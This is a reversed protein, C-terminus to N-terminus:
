DNPFNAIFKQLAMKEQEELNKRLRYRSKKVSSPNVGLLDGVQIDKLGIKEMACLKLENSSLQPFRDQLMKFFNPYIAEFDQRFLLWDDETSIRAQLLQEISKVRQGTQEHQISAIQEQIEDILEDKELLNTAYNMLEQEKMRLATHANKLQLQKMRIIVITLVILFGIIVLSAYLLLLKRENQAQLLKNEKEKKETEYKTQIEAIQKSKEASFVSDQVAIHHQLTQFALAHKGQETQLLALDKLVKAIQHKMELKQLLRLSQALREEAEKFNREEKYVAAMNMLNIAIGEEDQMQTDLDLAKQFYALAETNKHQEQYLFGLNTYVIAQGRLSKNKEHLALAKEYYTLAKEYDKMAAHTDALGTLTSALTQTDGISQKLQLAKQYSDLSKKLDKQEFYLSGINHHMRAQGTKDKIKEYAKLANIFYTLATDFNGEKFAIGGLSASVHAKVLHYQTKEALQLAQSFYTQAEEFKAQYQKSQGIQHLAAAQRRLDHTKEALNLANQAFYLSSDAHSNLYRLVLSLMLDIRISDQKEKQLKHRITAVDSSQASVSTTVGFLLSIYFFLHINNKLVKISFM